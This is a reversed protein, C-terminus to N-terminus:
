HISSLAWLDLPGHSGFSNNTPGPPPLLFVEPSTPLLSSGLIEGQALPDPALCQSLGM